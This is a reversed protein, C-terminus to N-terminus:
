VGGSKVYADRDSVINSEIGLNQSLSYFCCDCRPNSQMGCSNKKLLPHDLM